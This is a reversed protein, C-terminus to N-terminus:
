PGAGGGHRMGGPGLGLRDYRAKLEPNAALFEDLRAPNSELLKGQERYSEVTMGYGGLIEDVMGNIEKEMKQMNEPSRDVGKRSRMYEGMKEGIEIRAKVLLGIDVRESAVAPSVAAICVAAAILGRWSRVMRKKSM